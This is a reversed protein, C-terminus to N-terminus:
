WDDGVLIDIGKSVGMPENSFEEYGYVYFNDNYSDGDLSTIVGDKWKFGGCFGIIDVPKDDEMVPAISHLQVMDLNKNKLLENFRVPNDLLTFGKYRDLTKIFSLNERM